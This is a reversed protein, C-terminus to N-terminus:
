RWERRRWCSRRIGCCCAYRNRSPSSPRSSPAPMVCRASPRLRCSFRLITAYLLYTIFVAFTVTLVVTVISVIGVIFGYTMFIFIVPFLALAMTFQLLYVLIHVLRAVFLTRSNVPRPLIVLNDTTDLLISSFDTILTMAMMFLIYAHMMIMSLVLSHIGSVIFSM